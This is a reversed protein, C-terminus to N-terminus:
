SSSSSNPRQGVCLSAYPAHSTGGSSQALRCTQWRASRSERRILRRPCPWCSGRRSGTGLGGSAGGSNQGCPVGSLRSRIRTWPPTQSISQACQPPMNRRESSFNVQESQLRLTCKLQGHLARHGLVPSRTQHGGARDGAVAVDVAREAAVLHVARLSIGARRLLAVHHIDTWVM